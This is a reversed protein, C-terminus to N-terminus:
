CLTLYPRSAESLFFLENYYQISMIQLIKKLCVTTQWISPDSVAPWIMGGYSDLGEEIVIDQSAFSYVEKVTSHFFAMSPSWALKQQRQIVSEDSYLVFETILDRHSSQVNM